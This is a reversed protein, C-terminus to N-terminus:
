TRQGQGRTREATPPWTHESASPATCSTTTAGLDEIEARIEDLPANLAGPISGEVFEEQTRVDLLKWGDKQFSSSRLGTPPTRSGRCGTRPSSWGLQNIPDKASGFPPAYALELDILDTATLCRECRRRSLTLGSTSLRGEAGVAQAGLIADMPQIWWCSSPLPRPAQTTPLTIMRTHTSQWSTAARLLFDNENWGTAAASKGFVKVIATGQSALVKERYGPLATLPEAGQRNAINALPTLTANGDLM